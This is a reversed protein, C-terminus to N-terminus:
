REKGEESEKRARPNYERAIIAEVGVEAVLRLKYMVELWICIDYLLWKLFVFM